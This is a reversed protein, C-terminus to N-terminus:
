TVYSNGLLTLISDSLKSVQRTSSLHLSPRDTQRCLWLKSYKQKAALSIEKETSISIIIAGVELTTLLIKHILVYFTGVYLSLFFSLRETTDSKKHGWPSYLGHFEGPWFVPTPLREEGPSRELGPISGIDGAHCSSEKGASFSPFRVLLM